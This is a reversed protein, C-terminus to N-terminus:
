LKCLRLHGGGPVCMFIAKFFLFLFLFSSLFSGAHFMM